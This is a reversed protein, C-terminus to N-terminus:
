KMYRTGIDIYDVIRRKLTEEDLGFANDNEGRDPLFLTEIEMSFRAGIHSLSVLSLKKIM